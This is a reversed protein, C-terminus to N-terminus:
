EKFRNYAHKQIEEKKVASIAQEVEEVEQKKMEQDEIFNNDDNMKRQEGYFTLPRNM